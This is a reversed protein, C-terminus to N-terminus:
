TELGTLSKLLGSPKNITKLRKSLILIVKTEERAWSFM